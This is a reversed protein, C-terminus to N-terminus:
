PTLKTEINIGSKPVYRKDERKAQLTGRRIEEDIQDNVKQKENQDDTYWDIPIKMLVGNISTGDDNVGVTISEHGEVVEYGAAKARMIRDPEKRWNDNFIRYMFNPDGPNKLRQKPSGFPIREKRESREMERGHKPEEQPEEKGLGRNVKERAAAKAASIPRGPGRKEETDFGENQPIESQGLINDEM